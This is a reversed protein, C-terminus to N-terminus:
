CRPRRPTGSGVAEDFVGQANRGVRITPRHPGLRLPAPCARLSSCAAVVSRHAGDVRVAAVPGRSAASTAMIAVLRQRQPPSRLHDRFAEYRTTWGGDQARSRGCRHDRIDVLDGAESPSVTAPVSRKLQVSPANATSRCENWPEGALELSPREGPGAQLPRPAAACPIPRFPRHGTRILASVNSQTQVM